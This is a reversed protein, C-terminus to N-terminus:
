TNNIITCNNTSKYLQKLTKYKEKEKKSDIWYSKM